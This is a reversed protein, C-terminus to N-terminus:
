WSFELGEGSGCPWRGVLNLPVNKEHFQLRCSHRVGVGHGFCHQFLYWADPYYARIFPNVAIEADTVEAKEGASIAALVRGSRNPFMIEGNM